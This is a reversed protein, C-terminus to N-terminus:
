AIPREFLGKLWDRVGDLDGDLKVAAGLDPQGPWGADAVTVGGGTREGEYRPIVHFHVNPDIMMLMLYNIKAYDVAGRLATEITATVNKLEAHAEAPLDGFATADSKAALILSGLTPQAPRLLVLWHDFEAILTTPYGFKAITANM